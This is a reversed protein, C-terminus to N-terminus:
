AVRWHLAIIRCSHEREERYKMKEQHMVVLGEGRSGASGKQDRRRCFLPVVNFRQFAKMELKEDMCCIRSQIVLCLLFLCPEDRCRYEREHVSNSSSRYTIAHYFDPPNTVTFQPHRFDFDTKVWIRFRVRLPRWAVSYFSNNECFNRPVRIM